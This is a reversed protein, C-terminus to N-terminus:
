VGEAEEILFGPVVRPPVQLRPRASPVDSPPDVVKEDGRLELREHLRRRDHGLHRSRIVARDAEGEVYRRSIRSGTAWGRSMATTPPPMTPRGGGNATVSGEGRRRRAM